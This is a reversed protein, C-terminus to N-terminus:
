ELEIILQSPNFYIRTASVAVGIHVVCDNTATPATQTLTNGSTGTLSLFVPQNQTFSWSNNTIFGQMLYTGTNNASVTGTCMALIRSTIITDADGLQAKYSSNIYVLDGLVQSENATFTTSVGSFSTNAPASEITMSPFGIKTTVGSIDITDGTFKIKNDFVVTTSDNEISIYGDGTSNTLQINGFTNNIKLAEGDGTDYEWGFYGAITAITNDPVIGSGKYIGGAGSALKLNNVVSTDITWTAGSGTVDIDGKDGDTVGGGTEDTGPRWNSGNWKLVQGNTALGQNIDNLGVKGDAIKFSDIANDAIKATTVADNDITWTAGSSSVTIDGKDGDTLGVINTPIQTYWLKTTGVTVPAPTGLYWLTNANASGNRVYIIQGKDFEVSGDLDTPRSWTGSSLVYLGNQTSDTQNKLLVRTGNTTLVGDITQNGSRNINTTSAIDAYNKFPFERPSSIITANGSGNGGSISVSLGGDVTTSGNLTRVRYRYASASDVRALFGIETSFRSISDLDPDLSIITKTAQDTASIGLGTFSITDRQTLATSEDEIVAGGTVGSLIFTQIKYLSDQWTSDAKSLKILTNATIIPLSQSYLTQTFLILSFFLLKKM